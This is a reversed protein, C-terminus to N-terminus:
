DGDGDGDDCFCIRHGSSKIAVEESIKVAHVPTGEHFRAKVLDYGEILEVIKSNELYEKITAVLYYNNNDGVSYWSIPKIERSM